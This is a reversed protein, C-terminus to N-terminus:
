QYFHRPFIFSTGKTTHKCIDSSHKGITVVIFSLYVWSKFGKWLESLKNPMNCGKAKVKKAAFGIKKRQIM